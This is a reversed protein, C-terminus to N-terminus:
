ADFHDAGLIQALQKTTHETSLIQVGSNLTIRAGSRAHSTRVPELAIIANIDIYIAAYGGYGDSIDSQLKIFRQRTIDDM